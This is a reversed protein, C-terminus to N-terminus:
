LVFLIMITVVLTFIVATEIFVLGLMLGGRINDGAEPQRAISESSKSIAKGMALAGTASAIAIAAAAAIAKVATSDQGKGESEGAQETPEQIAQQDQASEAFVFMTMSAMLLGITLIAIFVKGLLNARKM